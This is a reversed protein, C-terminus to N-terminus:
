KSNPISPGRWYELVSNSEFVGNLWRTYKAGVSVQVFPAYYRGPPYSPPPSTLTSSVEGVLSLSLLPSLFQTESLLNIASRGSPIQFSTKTTFRRRRRWRTRGGWERSRRRRRLRPAAAAAPCWTCMAALKVRVHHRPM